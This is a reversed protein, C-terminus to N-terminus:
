KRVMVAKTMKCSTHQGIKMFDAMNHERFKMEPMDDGVKDDEVKYNHTFVWCEEDVDAGDCIKQHQDMM